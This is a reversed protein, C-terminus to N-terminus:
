RLDWSTEWDGAQTEEESQMNTWVFADVLNEVVLDHEKSEWTQLDNNTLDNDM